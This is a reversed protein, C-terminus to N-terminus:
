NPPPIETFFTSYSLRFMGFSGIPESFFFANPGVISSFGEVAKWEDEYEQLEYRLGAAPLFNMIFNSGSLGSALEPEALRAVLRVNDLGFFQDAAGSVPFIRVGLEQVNGLMEDTLTIAQFDDNEDLVFWQQDLGISVEEWGGLANLDAGAVTPSFCFTPEGGIQVSIVMDIFDVDDPDDFFLEAQIREVGRYDGLLLDQGGFSDAFWWSGNGAETVDSLFPDEGDEWFVGSITGDSFDFFSWADAHEQTGFREWAGPVALAPLTGLLIATTVKEIM